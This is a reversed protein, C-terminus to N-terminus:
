DFRRMPYLHLGSVRGELVPPSLGGFLSDSNSGKRVLPSVSRSTLGFVTGGEYDVMQTPSVGVASAAEHSRGACNTSNIGHCHRSRYGLLSQHSGFWGLASPLFSGFM